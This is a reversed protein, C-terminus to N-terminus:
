TCRWNFFCFMRGQDKARGNFQRGGCFSDPMLVTWSCDFSSMRVKSQKALKLCDAKNFIQKM